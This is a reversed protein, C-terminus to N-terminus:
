NSIFEVQELSIEGIGAVSLTVEGIKPDLNVGNVNAIILTKLAIKKSAISGIVHISYKGAPIRLGQHDLLDWEFELFGAPQENLLLKRILRDTCDYIYVIAKNVKTVVEVLIRCSIEKDILLHDSAIIVKRGVLASAQLIQNSQFTSTLRKSFDPIIYNLHYWTLLAWTKDICPLFATENSFASNDLQNLDDYKYSYGDLDFM